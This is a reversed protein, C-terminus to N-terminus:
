NEIESRFEAVIQSLFEESKKTLKTFELLGLVERFLMERTEHLDLDPRTRMTNRIVFAIERPPIEYLDRPGRCRTLVPQQDPLRFTATVISYGDVADEAILERRNVLKELQHLYSQENNASLRSGGTAKYHRGILYSGLIPGEVRVIEQLEKRVKEPMGTISTLSSLNQRDWSIYPKLWEFGLPLQKSFRRVQLGDAIEEANLEYFGGEAVLGIEAPVENISEIEDAKVRIATPTTEVHDFRDVDSEEISSIPEARDQIDLSEKRPEHLGAQKDPVGLADILPWLEDLARPNNYFESERIRFFRWDCSELIRQRRLDREYEEPGHWFDGDCEVALMGYAGEVVLDIRFSHGDINPEYQAVVKHGRQVIANFVRQEFLSEFPEVILDEPVLEQSAVFRRDRGSEVGLCYDLLRWRLDRENKLDKLQVSHILIVQDRARSMAVNYRQVMNEKIQATMRKNPAMVMSLLIVDRESGQFSAANGVRIERSEIEQIDIRDLMLSRILKQQETGRLTIVGISKGAYSSDKILQDLTNVVVEAEPPNTVAGESGKVYGDRVFVTRIPPLSSGGIQRVAVLRIGDPKYAIENSFEIIAPVCRRHETLTLPSGFVTKCEDFLSFDANSWNAERADGALHRKVVERLEDIKVYMSDPSVQKHDGVVVVRKGLALLFLADVGAQSAEDVIVVDFMEISPNFTEAIQSIPMVWAPVADTCKELYSRIDRRRRAANKGTGAGLKKSEVAFRSMFQLTTNSIRDLAKKWARRRALSRIQAEIQKDLYKLNAFLLEYGGSVQRSLGDRVRKWRLAGVLDNITKDIEAQKEASQVEDIWKVVHEILRDDPHLKQRYKQVLALKQGWIDIQQHARAVAREFREVDGDEVAAVYEVFYSPLSGNFRFHLQDCHAKWDAQLEKLESNAITRQAAVLIRDLESVSDFTFGLDNLNREQIARIAALETSAELVARLEDRTQRVRNLASVRNPASFDGDVFLVSNMGKLENDAQVVAILRGIAEATNPFRGLVRVEGLVEKARKILSGSFLSVKLEGSPTLELAGKERILEQLSELIPLLDISSSELKVEHLNGAAEYRAIIQSVSEFYRSLRDHESQIRHGLIIERTMESAWLYQGTEIGRLQAIALQLTQVLSNASDLSILSDSLLTELNGKLHRVRQIKAGSWLQNMSPMKSAISVDSSKNWVNRLDLKLQEADQASFTIGPAQPNSVEDLWGLKELQNVYSFAHHAPTALVGELEIEGVELSRVDIIQRFVDARQRHLDEIKKLAVDEFEEFQDSLDSRNENANQLANVAKQLDDGASSRGGLNSVVLDRMEHPIQNSVERLAQSTAATVLVREGRSLFHTVMTAITRTKGTGPPGQILTTTRSESLKLAKTQKENLSLPLFLENEMFVAAGDVSWDRNYDPESESPDLISRMPLSVQGTELVASELTQLLKELGRGLKKRLILSPALRLSESDLSAFEDHDTALGPLYAHAFDNLVEKLRESDLGEVENLRAQTNILEQLEPKSVRSVWDDEAIFTASEDVIVRLTGSVEDLLIECKITFFHRDLYDSGLGYRLRGIGLVLEWEEDQDLLRQRTEFLRQYLKRVENVRSTRESWTKWNGHWNTFDRVISEYHEATTSDPLVRDEDANLLEASKVVSAVLNPYLAIESTSDHFDGSIWPGILASPEPPGKVIVKPVELLYEQAKDTEEAKLDSDRDVLPPTAAKHGRNDISWFRVRPDATTTDSLHHVWHGSKRALDALTTAPRSKLRQLEKLFAFISAALQPVTREIQGTM